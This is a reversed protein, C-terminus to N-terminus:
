GGDRAATSAAPRRRVERVQSADQAGACGDGVVDRAWGTFGPGVPSDLGSRRPEVSAADAVGAQAFGPGLVVGAVATRAQAGACGDVAVNQARGIFGPGISSDLGSRHLEVSVADAVGARAFGLGLVV